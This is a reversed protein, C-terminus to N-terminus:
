LIAAHQVEAGVGVMASTEDSETVISRALTGSVQLIQGPWKRRKERRAITSAALAPWRPRGGVEFNAETQALLEQGIATMLPALNGTLTEVRELMKYVARTDLKVKILPQEAM